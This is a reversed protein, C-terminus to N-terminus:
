ANGMEREFYNAGGGGGMRFLPMGTRWTFYPQGLNRRKQLTAVTTKCPASNQILWIQAGPLTLLNLCQYEISCRSDFAM